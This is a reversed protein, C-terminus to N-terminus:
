RNLGLTAISLEAYRGKASTRVASCVEKFGVNARGRSALSTELKDIQQQVSRTANNRELFFGAVTQSKIGSSAELEKAASASTAMGIVQWGKSEAVERVMELVATKSTGADGQVGQFM